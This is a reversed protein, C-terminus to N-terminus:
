QPQAADQLTRLALEFDFEAAAEAVAHLRAEEETGRAQRALQEALALAASDSDALLAALRDLEARSAPGGTASGAPAPAPDDLAAWALGALVEGLGAEATALAAAIDGQGDGRRCAQELATAAAQLRLAGITGATGRLTHARLRAGAADGAAHCASFAAIFGAQDRQFERLMRRYLAPDGGMSALGAQLNIGPLAPLAAGGPAAAEPPSAAPAARAPTIWQALTLYMQRVNIPKAIHDNMGAELVAARDGTMANATMAVIPLSRWQPQRRIARAATYGDMVPMQCDMLVGDFPGSRALLDLAEQGNCALVATVGAKRLLELALEQNMENDEVLLLQAGALKAMARAGDDDQSRAARPAANLGMAQAAAEALRTATVPKTLVGALRVARRAAEATADVRGHATMMLVPPAAGPGAQLRRACDIGDLRPLKWDMLVLDAPQAALRELAAVGDGALAVQMGLATAMAATIALAEPNDDVILIRRGRLPGASTGGHGHALGFRALFHFVSGQGPVSEVWIRGGMLEALEKSIALGLGSGGYKRTTSNDAQSFSQFLRACQEPSMGIGTDRVSFRLAVGHADREGVAVTVVIMGSDTFKLANNGLNILVQGLRLPDGLLDAPVEDAVRFLLELGKAETRMGIINALNEM